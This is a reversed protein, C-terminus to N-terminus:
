TTARRKRRKARVWAGSLLLMAALPILLPTPVEPTAAQLTNYTFTVAASTGVNGVGDTAEAVVSYQDPSTLAAAALALSWNTTGSTVPVFTESSQDFASGDWWAGTSIDEIAVSVSAVGTGDDSATGTIAGTWDAGYTSSDVPYTLAVAPASTTVTVLPSKESEIGEWNTGFTPTDTYQWQGSPVDPDNCPVPSVNASCTFSASATTSGPAYRQVIYDVIAVGNSTESQAFSIAVATGNPPETTPASPTAGQPLTAALAAPVNGTTSAVWFPFASRAALFVGGFLV